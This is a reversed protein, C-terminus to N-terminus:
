KSDSSANSRVKPIVMFAATEADHNLGVFKAENPQKTSHATTDMLRLGMAEQLTQLKTCQVGRLWSAEQMSPRLPLEPGKRESSRAQRPRAERRQRKKSAEGPPRLSSASAASIPVCCSKDRYLRMAQGAGAKGTTKGANGPTKRPEMLYPLAPMSTMALMPPRSATRSLNSITQFPRWTRYSASGSRHTRSHRDAACFLRGRETFTTCITQDSHKDTTQTGTTQRPLADACCCRPEQHLSFHTQPM